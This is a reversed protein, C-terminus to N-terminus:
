LWKLLDNRLCDTLDAKNHYGTKRKSSLIYTEVTRPSINLLRGIEKISKGQSLHFLCEIERKSLKVPGNLTRLSYGEHLISFPLTIGNEVPFGLPQFSIDFSNKFTALHKKDNTELLFAAKERFHLCFAHFLKLNNLYFNNIKERDASTCFAWTEVSDELRYHIDFGHWIGFSNHMKM